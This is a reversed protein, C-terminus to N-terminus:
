ADKRRWGAPRLEVPVSIRVPLLRPNRRLSELREVALDAMRAPSWVVAAAPPAGRFLPVWDRDYQQETMWGVLDFDRGPVFGLERAVEVVATAVELYLAVIARPRKARTLLARAPTRSADRPCDVTDEAAMPRGRKLCAATVGSWRALSHSSWVTPGLWALREHGLQLLHDAAAMGGQYSDQVVHDIPADSEWADVAVAPLGCGRLMEMTAADVSDLVLGCARATVLQRLVDKRDRGQSGVGVMSWGHRAAAGQLASLLEQHLPKWASPTAQLDAVYALPCGQDPDSARALVRYGKRAEAALYGEAELRKLVQQATKPSVGKSESLKRIPPLYHGPPYQGSALKRRIATFLDASVRGSSTEVISM